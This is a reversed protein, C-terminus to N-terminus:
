KALAILQRVLSTKVFPNHGSGNEPGAGRPSWLFPFVELRNAGIAPNDLYEGGIINAIGPKALDTVARDLELVVDFTHSDASEPAPKQEPRGALPESAWDVRLTVRVFGKANPNISDYEDKKLVLQAAEKETLVQAAEIGYGFAPQNWIENTTNPKQADIAFGRHQRKIMANAVILVSAPNAGECGENLIRGAEDRKIDGPAIDCRSGLFSAPADLYVEAMLATLDAVSFTVCGASGAACAVPATGNMKVSLPGSPLRNLLAAATWGNCHGFWSDVDEVGSGHNTKEWNKAETLKAPASLKMYKALPSDPDGFTADIGNDLKGTGEKGTPDSYPWFTDAYPMHAEDVIFTKGVDAAPLNTGLRRSARSVIIRPDEDPGIADGKDGEEYFSEDEEPTGACGAGLALTGLAVYSLYRRLSRISM